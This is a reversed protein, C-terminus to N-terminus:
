QWVSLHNIPDQHLARTALLKKSSIAICKNSTGSALTGHFFLRMDRSSRRDLRLSGHCAVAQRTQIHGRLWVAFGEHKVAKLSALCPLYIYLKLTNKARNCRMKKIKKVLDVKGSGFCIFLNM